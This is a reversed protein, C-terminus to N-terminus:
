RSSWILDIIEWFVMQRNWTILNLWGLVVLKRMESGSSIKALRSSGISQVDLM